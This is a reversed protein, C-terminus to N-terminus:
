DRPGQALLFKLFEGRDSIEAIMKSDPILDFKFEKGGDSQLTLVNIVGGTAQAKQEISKFVVTLKKGKIKYSTPVDKVPGELKYKGNKFSAKEVEHELYVPKEKPNEKPKYAYAQTIKAAKPDIAEAEFGAILKGSDDFLKLRQESDFHIVTTGEGFFKIVGSRGINGEMPKGKTDFDSASVAVQIMFISIMILLTSRLIKFILMRLPHFNM